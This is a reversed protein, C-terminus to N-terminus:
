GSVVFMKQTFWNKSFNCGCVLGGLLSGMQSISAVVIWSDFVVGWWWLLAVVVWGGFVLPM